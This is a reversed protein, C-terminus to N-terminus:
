NIKNGMRFCGKNKVFPFLCAQKLIVSFCVIAKHHSFSVTDKPANSINFGISLCKWNETKLGNDKEFCLFSMKSATLM